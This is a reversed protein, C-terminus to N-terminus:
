SLFGIVGHQLALLIRVLIGTQEPRYSSLSGDALEVFFLADRLADKSPCYSASASACFFHKFIELPSQPALPHPHVLFRTRWVEALTRKTFIDVVILGRACTTFKVRGLKNWLNLFRTM